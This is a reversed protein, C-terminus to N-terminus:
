EKVRFCLVTGDVCGAVVTKGDESVELCSIACGNGKLKGIESGSTLEWIRIDGGAGGAVLHNGDTALANIVEAPHLTLLEGGQLEAVIILEDKGSTVVRKGDPTLKISTIEDRHQSILGRFSFGEQLDWEVYTGDKSGSVAVTADSNVDLCNIETEHEVFEALPVAGIGSGEKYKWLRVSADWSGSVVFNNNFALCSVADDHAQIVDSVRGYDVSYMHISDDWSGVVVEKGSGTLVCSSLTMSCINTSRMQRQESLSYLKLSQDQSVSYVTQGDSSLKVDTIEDRHLKFNLISEAKCLSAWGNSEETREEEGIGMNLEGDQLVLQQIDPFEMTGSGTPSLLFDLSSSSAGHTFAGTGVSGNVEWDVPKTVQRKPHPKKFLQKPTQGFENIQAELGKREVPDDISDIDVAGEYTLYYFVNDAKVAEEGRQKYGFILDIWQHLHESVYECELAQRMKTVFDQADNAWPPLLVADVKEGNMKTGLDIRDKNLLFDSAQPMYFEPILEKVDSSSTLVNNWTDAIDDFLRDPQDFKGNQLRLMYDPAVRVLYFLVYGPTSYHTGYLFRKSIYGGEDPNEKAENSSTMGMMLEEDDPMQEYRERFVQLREDNLAGIPKSLDRFVDPNSLDLSDSTFDSLVWPFVPYQTLDNYTRGAFFNIQQLYDFNSIMGNVWKLTLTDQDDINAVNSQSQHSAILAFVQDRKDVTKFAFFVSSDVDVDTSDSLFMEIGVHRLMHRRKSINIINNLPFKFVPTASINNSPQFYVVSNTILM